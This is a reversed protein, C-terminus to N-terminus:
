CDDTLTKTYTSAGPRWAVGRGAVGSQELQKVINARHLVYNFICKNDADSVATRKNLNRTAEEAIQIQEATMIATKLLIIKSIKDYLFADPLINWYM